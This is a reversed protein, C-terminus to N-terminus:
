DSRVDDIVTVKTNHGRSEVCLVEMESYREFLSSEDTGKFGDKRAKRYCNLLEELPFGQPTQARKLQNRDITSVVKGNEVMKVTDYMSGVLIAGNNLSVAKKLNELDGKELYCRAGDHVLVIDQHCHGLGNYVSESRTEGGECYTLRGDKYVDSLYKEVELTCVVVIERCEEDALFPKLTRDIVTEGNSFIHLMKSIGRNFRTSSGAATIVASYNM